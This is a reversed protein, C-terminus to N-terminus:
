FLGQVGDRDVVDFRDQRGDPPGGPGNRRDRRYPYKARPPAIRAAAFAGDAARCAVAGTGAGDLDASRAAFFGGIDQHRLGTGPDACVGDDLDSHDRRVREPDHQHALLRLYRANARGCLFLARSIIAFGLQYNEPPVQYFWGIFHYSGIVLFADLLRQVVSIKPTHSRIFGNSM